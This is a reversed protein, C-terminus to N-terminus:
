EEFTLRHVWKTNRVGPNNPVIIRAPFGHDASLDAGNVRLALLSDGDDVQNGSLRGQSFDTGEQLSEVYVSVPRAVGSLRALARLRVGEWMQNPVSWGEVCAIPLHARHQPMALLQERSFEAARHGPAGRIELRWAPGAADPDIGAADASVNVQFDNPGNGATFGGRPALLALRRLVGGTSQGVTTVLLAASTAAVGALAGRRSISPPDPHLPAVTHPRLQEPTTRATDVRLEARVQRERFARRVTPLKVTAHVAVAGTFIWAAFFHLQYFSGPFRYWYQTNMLGTLFTFIGSSVLLFL